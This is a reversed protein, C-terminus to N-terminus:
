LRKMFYFYMPGSVEFGLREYLSIARENDQRVHLFPHQGAALILQLQHVLLLYAYGRGTYDPHTCVASIETRNDIHLRQGSMAVLKNNGFIGHYHGFEITRMGFPGPRTLKALAVMEASQAPQLSQLLSFDKEPLTGGIYVFQLGKVEHNFQWGKPEPVPHPSAYLMKRGEPLLAHLEEFGNENGEEFGAFPSVEEEFYKVRENGANFHADTTSLAAFVPNSIYTHM